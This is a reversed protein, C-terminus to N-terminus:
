SPVLSLRSSLRGMLADGDKSSGVLGQVQKFSAGLKSVEAKKDGLVVGKAEALGGLQAQLADLAGAEAGVM